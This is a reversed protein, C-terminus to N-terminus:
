GRGTSKNNKRDARIKAQKAVMASRAKKQKQVVSTGERLVDKYEKFTKQFQIVKKVTAPDLQKVQKKSSVPAKDLQAAPAAIAQKKGDFANIVFDKLDNIFNKIREGWGLQKKPKAIQPNEQPANIKPLETPQIPKFGTKAKGFNYELEKNKPRTELPERPKGDSLKDLRARLEEDTSPKKPNKLAEQTPRSDQLATFRAELELDAPIPGKSKQLRAELQQDKEREIQKSQNELRIEDKMQEMLKDVESKDPSGIVRDLTDSVIKAAKDAKDLQANLKQFQKELDKDIKSM